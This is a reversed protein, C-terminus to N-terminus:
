VDKRQLCAILYVGFLWVYLEDALPLFSCISNPM